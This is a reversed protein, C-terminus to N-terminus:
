MERNNLRTVLSYSGPHAGRAYTLLATLPLPQLVLGLGGLLCSLNPYITNNSSLSMRKVASWILKVPNSMCSPRGLFFHSVTSISRLSIFTVSIRKSTRFTKHRTCHLHRSCTQSKNCTILKTICANIYVLSNAVPIDHFQAAEFPVVLILKIIEFYFNLSVYQGTRRFM